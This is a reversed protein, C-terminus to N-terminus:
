GRGHPRPHRASNMVQLDATYQGTAPNFSVNSVQASVGSAASLTSLDISAGAAATTTVPPSVASNPTGDPNATDTLNRINVVTGDDADTNVMQFVLLGSSVTTLSTVDITVTTGDFNMLGPAFEAAGQKGLAFLPSGPQSGSLLAQSPNSPDVLSVLLQDGGVSSKDTQDFQTAVQFSITRTGQAVAGLTELVSDQVLLRNREELHIDSPTSEGWGATTAAGVLFDSSVDFDITEQQSNGATDSAKVAVQHAGVTLPTTSLAQDFDGSPGLPLSSFAGGDLSFQASPTASGIETVTGILRGTASLESSDIPASVVLAISPLVTSTKLTFSLSATSTTNVGNTATLVVTHPGDASGDLKLTTTYSFNGSPDVPLAISSGGDVQAQLSAIGSLADTVHGTVTVNTATTLGPAPSTITLTPAQTNVTFTEVASRGVDGAKDVAIFQVRHGGDASGDLPLATTYSFNGAPSFPVAVPSGGDVLAQLSAIGSPVNTIQGTITINTATALGPTPSTITLMPAKTDLTFTEVASHGVNGAGDVAVFQMQHGGDASGDLKLTTTYSFNGTPDVPVIVSAGGDVQAQLSAIGSLADAVHGTVTINSATTLGPAPSTITLTPAQTDLTFSEAATRGVNGAGDVAIFQVRHGGDASGDLPLDTTYTFNGAPGFPVAVSVGGDVVAVLSAVGTGVDTVDGTFTVESRVLSGPSVSQVVIMPPILDLRNVKLITSTPKHGAAAASLRVPISGFGVTFTLQFQGHKNAKVTQEISGNAGIDLKVKARAYTKGAVTVLGNSDPGSIVSATIAPKPTKKLTHLQPPELLSAVAKGEGIVNTFVDIALLTRPELPELLPQHRRGTRSRRHNAPHSASREFPAPGSPM